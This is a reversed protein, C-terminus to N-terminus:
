LLETKEEMEEDETTDEIDEEDQIEEAEEGCCNEAEGRTDYENYCGICIFKKM